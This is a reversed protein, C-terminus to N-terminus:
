PLMMWMWQWNDFQQSEAWREFELYGDANFVLLQYKPADQPGCEIWYRVVFPLGKLPLCGLNGDVWEGHPIRKVTEDAQLLLNRATRVVQPDNIDIAAAYQNDNAFYWWQLTLYHRSADEPDVGTGFKWKLKVKDTIKLFEYM